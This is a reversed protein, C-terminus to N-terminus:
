CLFRGGTVIDVVITSIALVVLLAIFGLGIMALKNKRLRRWADMWLSRQTKTVAESM